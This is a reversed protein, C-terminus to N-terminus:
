YGLFKTGIIYTTVATIASMCVGWALDVFTLMLPWGTITALNTLDYTAYAALGFLAAALAAHTLSKLAVAPATAFYALAVAYIAYFGVAAPWVVDSRLMSGLQMRYLSDGTVAIWLFDLLFLIPLSIAALVLTQM